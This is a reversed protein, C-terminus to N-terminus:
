CKQEFCLDHTCTLVAETRVLVWLRHKPDFILFIAMGQMDWNQWIFTPYSLTYIAPVHKGSSNPKVVCSVNEFLIKEVVECNLKKTKIITKEM